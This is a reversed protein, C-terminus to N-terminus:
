AMAKRLVDRQDPSCRAVARTPPWLTPITHFKKKKSRISPRPPFYEAKTQILAVVDRREHPVFVAESVHLMIAKIDKGPIRTIRLEELRDRRAM